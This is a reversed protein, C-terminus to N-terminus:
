DVKVFSSKGLRTKLRGKLEDSIDTVGSVEVVEENDEERLNILRKDKSISSLEFVSQGKWGSYSFKTEVILYNNYDTVFGIVKDNHCTDVVFEASSLASVSRKYVYGQDTVFYVTNKFPIGDGDTVKVVGNELKICPNEIIDSKSISHKKSEYIPLVAKRFEKYLKLLYKTRDHNQLEEIQNELGEIEKDHSRTLYSIPKKVIEHAIELSCDTSVVIKNVLEESTMKVIDNFVGLEKCKVLIRYLELSERSRSLESNIKKDIARNLCNLSREVVYNLNAYVASGDEEMVRNFTTNSKTAWILCEKFKEPSVKDDYIEFIYKLSTSSADRFGVQNHTFYKDWKDMKNIVADISKGYLGEVLFTSDSIQTVISSTTIRGRCPHVDERLNENELLVYGLDPRVVRSSFSGKKIYDIYYDILDILNLPMVKTSLGIAIGESGEFLAYPILCPLSSPEEEGIEGIEYDAYDVFQCFNMRAIESLYCETYRDASPGANVSGFNGKTTFLPLTNLPYAMNNIAGTVSSSGHPHLALCMGSLKATKMLKKPQQNSIYIIRRQVPKLGDYVSPLARYELVYRAYDTYYEKAILSADANVVQDTGNDVSLLGGRQEKM